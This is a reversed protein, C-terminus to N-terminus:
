QEKQEQKKINQKNEETFEDAYLKNISNVKVEQVDAPFVIEM